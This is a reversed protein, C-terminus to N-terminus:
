RPSHYTPAKWSFPLVGAKPPAVYKRNATSMTSKCPKQHIRYLSDRPPIPEILESEISESAPTINRQNEFKQYIVYIYISEYCYDHLSLMPNSNDGLLCLWEM